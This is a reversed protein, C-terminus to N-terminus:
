MWAHARVESITPRHNPDLQLMCNILDKFEESYYGVPKDQSHTKWFLDSRNGAILKYFPDKVTAMTFPPHQAMMIFLIIAAAFLDVERGKYPAEVHIEPAMYTM